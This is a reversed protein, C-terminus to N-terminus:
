FRVRVGGVLANATTDANNILGFASSRHHIRTFVSWDEQGPVMVELETNMFIMLNSVRDGQDVELKPTSFAYSLGLGWALSTDLWDDWPLAQWRLNLASNVETHDNIGSFHQAVQGEAELTLYDEWHHLEKGGGLAM